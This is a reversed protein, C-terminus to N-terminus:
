SNRGERMERKFQERRRRQEEDTDPKLGADKEAVVVPGNPEWPHAERPGAIPEGAAKKAAVYANWDAEFQVVQRQNARRIAAGFEADAVQVAEMARFKRVNEVAEKRRTADQLIGALYRRQNSPDPESEKMFAIVRRIDDLTFGDKVVEASVALRKATSLVLVGEAHLLDAVAAPTAPVDALTPPKPEEQTSPHTTGGMWGSESYLVGGEGRASQNPSLGGQPPSGFVGELVDGM